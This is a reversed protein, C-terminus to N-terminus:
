TRPCRSARFHGYEECAFAPTVRASERGLDAVATGHRIGGRRADRQDTLQESAPDVAGPMDDRYGCRVRPEGADLRNTEHGFEELRCMTVIRGPNLHFRLAVHTRPPLTLMGSVAPPSVVRTVGNM